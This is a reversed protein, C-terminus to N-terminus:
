IHISKMYNDYADRFRLYEERSIVHLKKYGHTSKIIMDALEFKNNITSFHTTVIGGVDVYRLLTFHEPTYAHIIYFDTPKSEVSKYFVPHEDNIDFGTHELKLNNDKM